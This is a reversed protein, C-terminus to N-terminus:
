QHRLVIYYSGFILNGIFLFFNQLKHKLKAHCGTLFFFFFFLIQTLPAPNYFKKRGFNAVANNNM